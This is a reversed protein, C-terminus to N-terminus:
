NEEKQGSNRERKEAIYTFNFFVLRMRTLVDIVSSRPVGGGKQKVEMYWESTRGLKGVLPLSKEMFVIM